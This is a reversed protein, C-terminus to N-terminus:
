ATVAPTHLALRAAAITSLEDETLSEGDVLRQILENVTM